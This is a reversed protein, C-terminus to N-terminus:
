TPTEQQHHFTLLRDATTRADFGRGPRELGAGGASGASSRGTARRAPRSSARRRSGTPNTPWRAGDDGM